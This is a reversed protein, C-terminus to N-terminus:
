YDAGSGMRDMPDYSRESESPTRGTRQEPTIDLAAVDVAFTLALADAIDPSGVGRLKMMKKPEIVLQDKQNHEYLRNTLEQELDNDNPLRSRHNMIWQRMRWWMESAKSQYKKTDNATSGFHIETAHHGLQNIRDCIPGGIGTGDVFIADPEHRKILMAANSVVLMSNRSKEGSLKYIPLSVCDDGRRFFYVTSDEGGRSVDIGLILPQDPIFMGSGERGRAYADMVDAASIFQGDAQKPFKGFVRVRCFDSDYGYEDIWSQLLVKNTMKAKTCDIQQTNYQHKSGHFADYFPGSNNNPNGFKFYWGEGDSLSGLIAEHIVKSLGSAEDVIMLVSSAANHMGQFAAPNGEDNACADIRWDPYSVHQISMSNLKFWHKNILLSHWKALEVWTKTKLQGFTNATVVGRAMPRTSMIWLILFATYCSKGSGHGSSIASKYPMVQNSGTFPQQQMHAAMRQFELIQWDDPGTQHELITGSEGWPFAFMVFGLPDNYYNSVEDILDLKHSNPGENM